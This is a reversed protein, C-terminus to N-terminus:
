SGLRTLLYRLVEESIRLTAELERTLAPKLKFKTLVYDGEAFRRIAYSLKRKGWRETDAIVGGRETVFRKVKEVTAEFQEETLEPSVIMVLEYDRLQEDKETLAKESVM